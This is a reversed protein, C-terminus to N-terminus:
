DVEITHREATVPHVLMECLEYRVETVFCDVVCSNWTSMYIVELLLAPPEEVQVISCCYPMFLGAISM